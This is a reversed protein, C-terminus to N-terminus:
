DVPVPLAMKRLATSAGAQFPDLVARRCALGLLEVSGPEMTGPAEGGSGAQRLDVVLALPAPGFYPRHLIGSGRQAIAGRFRSDVAAPLDIILRDGLLRIECLDDAILVAGETILSLALSSKGAGAPGRLLVGAGEIAVATGHLQLHENM